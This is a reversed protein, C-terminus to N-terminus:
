AEHQVTEEGPLIGYWYRPVAAPEINALVCKKCFRSLSNPFLLGAESENWMLVFAAKPVETGCMAILDSGEKLPVDSDRLHVKTM